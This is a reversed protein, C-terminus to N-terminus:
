PSSLALAHRASDEPPGHGLLAIGPAATAVQVDVASALREHRERLHALDAPDLGHDARPQLALPLRLHPETVHVKVAALPAAQARGDRDRRALRALLAPCAEGRLEALRLSLGARPMEGEHREVEHGEADVSVFTPLKSVHYRTALAEGAPTEVDVRLITGDHRTCSAELEAVLPAMRECVACHPSTFELLHPRDGPVVAAATDGGKAAAVPRDCALAGECTAAPSAQSLASGILLAFALFAKPLSLSRRCGRFALPRM